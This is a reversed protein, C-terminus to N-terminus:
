QRPDESVKAEKSKNVGECHATRRGVYKDDPVNEAM